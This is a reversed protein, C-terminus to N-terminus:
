ARQSEEDGITGPFTRSRDDMVEGGICVRTRKSKDPEVLAEHAPVRGRQELRQVCARAMASEGCEFRTAEAEVLKMLCRMLCRVLRRMLWRMLRLWRMLMLWRMLRRM